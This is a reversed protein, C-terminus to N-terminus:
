SGGDRELDQMLELTSRVLELSRAALPDGGAARAAEVEGELRRREVELRDVTAVLEGVRASLRDVQGQAADAREAESTAYWVSTALTAPGFDGDVVLSAPHVGRRSLLWRQWESVEADAVVAGGEMQDAFLELFRGWPFASGPDTRRTPDLEGHGIFGPRGARYEAATIHRAPVVVGVTSKVWRAMSAAEVAGLRLVDDVWGAPLTPWQAARVAFSLGLSWRNGGTGEHFMEWEYRGVRVITDSDIVSHYSGAADTRKSIFAAVAEAGGDPLTTDASFEATHAVIAGTVAARRPNRYQSRAPPHDEM